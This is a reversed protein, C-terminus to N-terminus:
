RAFDSSLAKSRKETCAPWTSATHLAVPFDRHTIVYKRPVITDRDQTIARVETVQAERLEGLDTVELLDGVFRYVLVQAGKWGLVTPPGTM